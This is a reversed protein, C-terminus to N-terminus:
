RNLVTLNVTMQSQHLQPVVCEGRGRNGGRHDHHLRETSTFLGARSPHPKQLLTRQGPCRVLSRSDPQQLQVSLGPRVPLVNFIVNHLHLHVTQRLHYRDARNVIGRNINTPAPVVPPSLHFTLLVQVAISSIQHFVTFDSSDTSPTSTSIFLLFFVVWFRLKCVTVDTHFLAAM